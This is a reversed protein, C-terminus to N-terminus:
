PNNIETIRVSILNSKICEIGVSGLGADIVMKALHGLAGLIELRNMEDGSHEIDYERITTIMM